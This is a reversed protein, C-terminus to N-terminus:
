AGCVYRDDQYRHRKFNGSLRRKVLYRSIKPLAEAALVDALDFYVYTDNHIGRVRPSPLYKKVMYASWGRNIVDFLFIGPDDKPDFEVEGYEDEILSAM